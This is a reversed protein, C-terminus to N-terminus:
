RSRRKSETVVEVFAGQEVAKQAILDIIHNAKKMKGKCYPCSSIDQITLYGCEGCRIGSKKYDKMFVLKMIRGEQLANLVDEVGIVANENKMAKTLLASVEEQERKIEVKRLIPEAKKLIEKGSAAMDANFTGIVKEAIAPPLMAKVKAVAEESGGILMRGVYEKSIFSDLEKIVDKLHMKVHYDIHREYSKEALAFWGGKKHRGPVDESRVEVYEEIEGLHVLFLRASDRGVMLIAYRQYNDLIDLLPKIYPKNDVVIENMLPVSLHYEQWLSKEQSSFLALGKKLIRKNTLIYSEIKEIDGKVKKLVNKDLNETTNKLLNKVHIVYNNKVNTKPNVNLYLSVFYADDGRMKSIEKLEEKSLMKEEKERDPYRL